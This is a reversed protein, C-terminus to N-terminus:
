RGAKFGYFFGGAPRGTSEDKITAIKAIANVL